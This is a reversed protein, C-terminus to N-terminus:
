IIGTNNTNHWWGKEKLSELNCKATILCISPRHVLFVACAVWRGRQETGGVQKCGNICKTRATWGLLLKVLNHQLLIQAM